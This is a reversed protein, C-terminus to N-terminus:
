RLKWALDPLVGIVLIIVTVIGVLLTVWVLPKESKLHMFHWGILAAKGSAIALAIGVAAYRSVHLLSVGVTAVTLVLLAIYVGTYVKLANM